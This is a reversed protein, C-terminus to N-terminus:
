ADPLERRRLSIASSFLCAEGGPLVSGPWNRSFLLRALGVRGEQSGTQLILTCQCSLWGHRDKTDRHASARGDLDVSEWCLNAVDGLRLGTTAGLLVAGRWDGQASEVLRVSKRPRSPSADGVEREQGQSAGGGAVPNIPVFGLRHAVDFPM